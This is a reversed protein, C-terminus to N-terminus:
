GTGCTCMAENSNDRVFLLQNIVSYKGKNHLLVYYLVWGDMWGNMWEDMMSDIEQQFQDLSYIFTEDQVVLASQIM